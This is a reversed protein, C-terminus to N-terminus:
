TPHSRPRQGTRGPRHDPSAVGYYNPDGSALVAVRRTQAEATVRDLWAELKGTLVLRQGPHDPFFALHREGGRGPSRGRRNNGPSRTRYRGRGLGLGVVDIPHSM